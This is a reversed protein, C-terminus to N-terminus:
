WTNLSRYPLPVPPIKARPMIATATYKQLAPQMRLLELYNMDGSDEVMMESSSRASVEVEKHNTPESDAWRHCRLEYEDFFSLQNFYQMFYM